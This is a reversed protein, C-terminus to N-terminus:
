TKLQICKGWDVELAGATVSGDAGLKLGFVPRLVVNEPFNTADYEVSGVSTGNVWFEIRSNGDFTIGVTYWTEAVMTLADDVLETPGTGSDAHKVTLIANTGTTGGNVHVSNFGVFDFTAANTRLVGTADTQLTNTGQTM